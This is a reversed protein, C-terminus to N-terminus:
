RAKLFVPLEATVTNHVIGALPDVDYVTADPIINGYSKERITGGEDTVVAFTV